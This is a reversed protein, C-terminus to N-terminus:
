RGGNGAAPVPRGTGRRLTHYRGTETVAFDETAGGPWVVRVGDVRPEDGLGFLVRPDNTVAFSGEPRVRRWLVPEGDRLVAARAGVADRRGDATLLRLGLWPRDQGIQNILLRAPGSNNSVLVDVDGDDDVDGFAAGRSVESLAFVAGAEATVDTFHGHDNRYLQNPQHLPYPDGQRALSVIKTVAGNVVLLDLWGDNDLDAWATGFATYPLSPAGLGTEASDDEFMGNGDNRYLTNTEQDIHTMFLDLDGDGDFDGADVGMSGQPRGREDVAAGALLARDEFSGDGRNMWLNNAAADNAVYLDTRGDGDFDAAVAGLAPGFGGTLGARRTVDRFTGDGRNEYLLDSEPPFSKPGCFDPAGTLDRCVPPNALDYRVYRGVFLDLDGDGDMDFFVAPVSWGDAGLGADATADRFTGDGRNELLQDPGYNTLYLDLDGDGDYDGATVGMGYGTALRALGSAETVDTFALSSRDGAGDHVLDNRYLRDSPPAPHRLPFVADALTKGPDLMAGQVLYVDLDGDGDYDFLAGGSGLIEVMHFRGSGGNFHHFDLGSAAAVDTFWARGAPTTTQAAEQRPAQGAAPAAAGDGSGGGCAALLLAMGVAPVRLPLPAPPRPRPPRRTSMSDSALLAVAAAAGRGRPVGGTM